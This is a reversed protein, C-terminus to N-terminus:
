TKTESLISSEIEMYSAAPDPAMVIASGVVLLDAGADMLASANGSSVGGDVEITVHPLLQRLESVKKVTEPLFPNGQRGPHVGMVLFHKISDGFHKLVPVPTEPNVALAPAMGLRSIASAAEDVAAENAFAEYHIIITRFGAIQYDIFETPNRAMLHAEYHFAPNLVDLKVVSLGTAPVFDGDEFDVHIREVGPIREIIFNKDDFGERTQELIAPVVAPM